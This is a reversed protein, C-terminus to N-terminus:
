GRGTRRSLLGAAVLGLLMVSSPEPISTFPTVTLVVPDAVPVISATLFYGGGIPQPVDLVAESSSLLSASPGGLLDAPPSAFVGGSLDLLVGEWDESTSNFVTLSLLVFTESPSLDLTVTAPAVELFTPTAIPFPGAASGGDLAGEILISDVAHACPCLALCLAFALFHTIKM